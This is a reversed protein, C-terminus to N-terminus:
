NQTGANAGTGATTITGGSLTTTGGTARVAANIGYFSSSDSDSTVGTKTITCDTLTTTGGSVLVANEDEGTASYTKSSQADTGSSWSYGSSSVTSTTTGSSGGAGGTGGSTGGTTNGSGSESAANDDSGSSCAVATFALAASFCIIAATIKKM